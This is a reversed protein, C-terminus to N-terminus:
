QRDLGGTAGTRAGLQPRHRVSRASQGRGDWAQLDRLVVQGGRKRQPVLETDAVRERLHEHPSPEGVWLGRAVEQSGVLGVIGSLERPDFNGDIRDAAPDLGAPSDDDM